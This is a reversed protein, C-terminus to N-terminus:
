ARSSSSEPLDEQIHQEEIISNMYGDFNEKELVWPIKFELLSLPEAKRNGLKREFGLDPNLVV